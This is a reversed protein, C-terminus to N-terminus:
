GTWNYAMISFDIITVKGDENIDVRTPPSPKKYWFSLISFDIINVKCDANVDGRGTCVGEPLLKSLGDTVSFTAIHGFESLQNSTEAKSKTKHQGYDLVATNLNYTYVGSNNSTTTEFFEPSSHVSITVNSDPVTKGFIRINDGKKVQSKDVGILPAIFIGSVTTTTNNTIFLPFTLLTSRNNDDGGYITFLYNSTALNSISITFKADGGAITDVMLLGDKLLTVKSFPYAYGSFTVSTPINYGGGGGGGGNNGIVPIGVRAYIDLGIAFVKNSFSFLFVLLLIIILKYLILIKSSQSESKM